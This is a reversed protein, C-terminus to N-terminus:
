LTQFSQDRVLMEPRGNWYQVFLLAGGFCLSVFFLAGCMNWIRGSSSRKEVMVVTRGDLGMEVDSPASSYAM